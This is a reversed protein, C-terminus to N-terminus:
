TEQNRLIVFRSKVFYLQLNSSRHRGQFVKKTLPNILLILLTVYRFKEFDICSSTCPTGICEIVYVGM